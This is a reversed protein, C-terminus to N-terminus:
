GKISGATVGKVINRHFIFYFIITPVIVVVMAALLPGWDVVYEGRFALLGVPLTKVSNDTMIILSFLFENWINIFNIIIVASISGKSIPMVVSLFARVSGCGDIKAADLLENPFERFYAQFLLISFPANIAVYPFILGFYNNLLGIKSLFYFIPLMLSLAPIGLLSIFIILLANKGPFRLKAIAYGALLSIAVLIVLSVTTVIVSNKFYIPITIGRRGLEGFDYNEFSIATPLAFIRTRIDVSAKFSSTFLWFIPYLQSIALLILAFQIIGNNFFGHVENRKEIVFEKVIFNM